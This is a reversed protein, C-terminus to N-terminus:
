AAKKLKEEVKLVHGEFASLIEAQSAGNPIGAEEAWTPYFISFEGGLKVEEHWIDPHDQWECAKVINDNAFQVADVNDRVLLYNADHIQACPKIDNRFQSSRVKGMFEVCARSNLLCWSQGLANGATRGEAEAEFPTRRNGRIVQHLLPTRVRLGFAATIYGDKSAQNVKAAVWDDSVKYLVHYRAEVEKAKKETWGMQLMIGKFTGGYTLLFTPVKSDQRFVPYAKAISNISVVSNPDIGTMLDGFYSYARLSHGDYGDTYVKLKNPDKTTLASIRDELSMFDIGCFFWGPPAQFCSKIVKGLLLKGKDLFRAIRKGLKEMVAESLAMAVNAPLNQLNPGSSSLRGSVTGGLNFNGFLWHWGDPGLASEKLAEIFTGLIKDVAKFSILAELFSIADPNQTHKAMAKLDDAKTSPQKSKTYSIIPLALQGFLFEQLQPASRPNFTVAATEDDAMSIQKKKLSANRTRVHEERLHHTFAQVEPNADMTATADDIIVKLIEEVELVQEMNVPMGTLQMQVIDVTAPQFLNMYIDLQQDRVMRDWHKEYVFWTSLGDVLNYQLLAPLPIKRIDKIEEQAYDGAFEQAQKKLGLENRACSNTALYTILKTCHWRGKPLLAELGRLMGENDLLHAMYLQYVLVYADYAINHWIIKGQYARFFEALLARVEANHGQKGFFKAGKEDEWDEAVYDVPFAIGEHKSWCFTITGVGAKHHKLDFGEIDASLTPYQHLKTLWEKIAATTDPYDSFQVIDLGPSRYTGQVWAKLANIGIAIKEGVKAPDYFMTRYNPVYIAHQDGSTTPLIYGLMAETKNAGTIAQFYAGDGCIVYEVGLDKLTPFIEENLYQMVEAKPTKKTKTGSQHLGLVVIDDTNLGYPNIYCREIEDRRIDNVLIAVRYSSKEHSGFTLYKM